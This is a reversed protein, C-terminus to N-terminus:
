EYKNLVKDLKNKANLLEIMAAIYNAQTSLMQNQAQTMEIASATGNKFKVLYQEYISNALNLNEKENQFKEYATIIDSKAQLFSVQLNKEVLNTTNIAKEYSLKAQKIKSYRGFSTFLPWNLSVGVMNPNFFNFDPTNMQEQHIYYASLTPLMASKERRLSLKALDQQVKMIQFDINNNIDFNSNVLADYDIENFINELNDTLVINQDVDINLMVKLLKKSLEIQRKINSLSNQLNKCTLNLQDISIKDILGANYTAQMDDRIKLTNELSKELIKNNEEAMLILYYTQTVGELVDLKNKELNNESLLKYVKAAQLGVIYEGSFILQSVQVDWKINEKTGLEIPEGEVYNSLVMGSTLPVTPDMAAWDIYGGFNMVPVEFINSYSASGKVQPLGIATTEWVKNKSILVDLRANIININNELAYNRAEKLSLYITSDQSYSVNIIFLLIIIWFLRM